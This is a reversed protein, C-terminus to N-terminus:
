QERRYCSSKDSKILFLKHQAAFDKAKKTFKSIISQQPIYQRNAWTKSLQTLYGTNESKKRPHEVNRCICPHTIYTKM